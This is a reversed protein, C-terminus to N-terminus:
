QAKSRLISRTHSSLFPSANFFFFFAPTQFPQETFCLTKLQDWSSSRLQSAGESNERIPGLSYADDTHTVALFPRSTTYPPTTGMLLVINPLYTPLFDAAVQWGGTIGCCPSHVSWVQFPHCPPSSDPCCVLSDLVTGLSGNRMHSGQVNSFRSEDKEKHKM